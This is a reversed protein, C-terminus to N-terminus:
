AVLRDVMVLDFVGFARWWGTDPDEFPAQLGTEDYIRFIGAGNRVIPGRRHLLESAARYLEAARDADLAWASLNIRAPAYVPGSRHRLAGGEALVVFPPADGEHRATTRIPLGALASGPALELLLDRLVAVPDVIASM